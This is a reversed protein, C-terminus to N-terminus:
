ESDGDGDGDGDGGLVMNERSEGIRRCIACKRQVYMTGSTGFHLRNCSLPKKLM